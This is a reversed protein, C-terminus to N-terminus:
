IEGLLSCQVHKGRLPGCDPACAWLAREAAFGRPRQSHLYDGSFVCIPDSCFKTSTSHAESFQNDQIKIQGWKSECRRCRRWIRSTWGTRLSM